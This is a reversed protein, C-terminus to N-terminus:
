EPRERGRQGVNSFGISIERPESFLRWKRLIFQNGFTIFIHHLRSQISQENYKVFIKMIGGQVINKVCM